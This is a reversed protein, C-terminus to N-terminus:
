WWWRAPKRPRPPARRGPGSRWWRPPPPAAWRGGAPASLLSTNAGPSSGAGRGGVGPPKRGPGLARQGAADLFAVGAAGRGLHEGAEPDLGQDDFAHGPGVDPVPQVDVLVAHGEFRLRSRARAHAVEGDDLGELRAQPSLIPTRVMPGAPSIFSAAALMETLSGSGALDAAVAAAPEARHHTGLLELENGDVILACGADGDGIRFAELGGGPDEGLGQEVVRDAALAQRGEAGVDQHIDEVLGSPQRGAIEGVPLELGVFEIEPSVICSVMTARPPLGLCPQWEPQTM